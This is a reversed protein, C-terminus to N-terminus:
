LVPVMEFCQGYIVPEMTITQYVVTTVSNNNRKFMFPKLSLM